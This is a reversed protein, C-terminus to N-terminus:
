GEATIDFRKRQLGILEVAEGDERESSRCRRWWRRLEDCVDRVTKAADVLVRFSSAGTLPMKGAPVSGLLGGRHLREPRGRARALSRMMGIRAAERRVLVEVCRHGLRESLVIVRVIEAASRRDIAIRDV